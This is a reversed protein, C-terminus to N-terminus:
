RWDGVADADMSDYLAERKRNVRSRFGQITGDMEWGSLIEPETSFTKAQRLAEASVEPEVDVYEPKTQGPSTVVAAAAPVAGGWDDLSGHDGTWESGAVESSEATELPLAVGGFLAAQRSMANSERMALVRRESRSQERPLSVYSEGAGILSEVQPWYRVLGCFLVAVSAARWSWSWLRALMRRGRYRGGHYREDALQVLRAINESPLHAGNEKVDTRLLSQIYVESRCEACRQSHRVWVDYEASGEGKELARRRLNDCEHRM